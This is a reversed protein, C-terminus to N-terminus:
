EIPVRSSASVREADYKDVYTREGNNLGICYDGGFGYSKKEIYDVEDSKVTVPTQGKFSRNTVYNYYM